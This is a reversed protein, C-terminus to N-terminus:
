YLMWAPISTYVGDIWIATDDFQGDQNHDVRDERITIYPEFDPPHNLSVVIFRVFNGQLFQNSFHLDPLHHQYEEPLGEFPTDMIEAVGDGDTLAYNVLGARGIWEKIVLANQLPSQDDGEFVNVKSMTIVDSPVSWSGPILKLNRIWTGDIRKVHSEYIPFEGHTGIIKDTNLLIRILPFRQKGSQSIRQVHIRILDNNVDYRVAFDPHVSAVSRVSFPFVGIVIEAYDVYDSDTMMLGLEGVPDDSGVRLETLRQTLSIELANSLVTSWFLFVVLSALRVPYRM